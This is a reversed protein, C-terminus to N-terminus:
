GSRLKSGHIFRKCAHDKCTICTKSVSEPLNLLNLPKVWRHKGLCLIWPPQIRAWKSFAGCSAELQPPRAWQPSHWTRTWTKVSRCDDWIRSVIGYLVGALEVFWQWIYQSFANTQHALLLDGSRYLKGCNSLMHMRVVLRNGLLKNFSTM